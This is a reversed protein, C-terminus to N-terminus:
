IRCEVNGRIKPGYIVRRWETDHELWSERLSKIYRIINEMFAEVLERNKEQDGYIEM